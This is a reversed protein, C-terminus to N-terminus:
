VLREMAKLRKQMLDPTDMTDVVVTEYFLNTGGIKETANNFLMWKLKSQSTIDSIIAPDRGAEIRPFLLTLKPNVIVDSSPAMPQFDVAIKTGWVDKVEPIQIGLREAAGPFDYVLNGVRINDMLAGKFFVLGEDRFAFHLMEVTFIQYGRSLGELILVTKGAGAGGIVAILENREPVYMASAHFSYIGHRREMTAMCYKFFLGLNGFVSYRRDAMAADLRSFPGACWVERDGVRVSPPVDPLDILYLYADLNSDFPIDDVRHVDTLLCQMKYESFFEPNHLLWQNNSVLGFTAELVSVARTHLSAPLGKDM